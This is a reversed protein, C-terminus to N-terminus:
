LRRLSLSLKGEGRCWTRASAQAHITSPASPRTREELAVHAVRASYGAPASTPSSSAPAPSLAIKWGEAASIRGSPRGSRGNWTRMSASEAKKRM